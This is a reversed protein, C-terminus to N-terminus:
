PVSFLPFVAALMVHVPLVKGLSKIGRSLVAFVVVWGLLSCLTIDWKVEGAEGIGGSMDLVHDRCCLVTDPPYAYFIIYFVYM